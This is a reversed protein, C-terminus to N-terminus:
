KASSGEPSFLSWDHVCFGDISTSAHASPGVDAAAISLGALYDGNADVRYYMEDGDDYELPELQSVVALPSGIKARGYAGIYGNWVYICGLVGSNTFILRVTDPGFYIHPGESDMFGDIRLIGSNRNIEQVLNFGKYYPVVRAGAFDAEYDKFRRGIQFGAASRGAVIPANFDIHM